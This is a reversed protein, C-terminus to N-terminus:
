VWSEVLAPDDFQTRGVCVMGAARPVARAEDVTDCLASGLQTIGNAGVEWSVLVVHRPHEPPRDYITLMTLPDAVAVGV